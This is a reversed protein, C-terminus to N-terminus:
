DYNKSLFVPIIVLFLFFIVMIYINKKNNKQGLLNVYEIIIRSPTTCFKEYDNLTFYTDKFLSKNSSLVIRRDDACNASTKSSQKLYYNNVAELALENIKPNTSGIHIVLAYARKNKINEYINEFIRYESNMTKDSNVIINNIFENHLKSSKLDELGIKDKTPHM